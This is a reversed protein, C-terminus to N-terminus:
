RRLDAWVTKGADGLPEVGWRAALADVAGLGHLPAPPLAPGSGDAEPSPLPSADRVSIRLTDGHAALAVTFGSRAHVVANAALETVVLAVDDALDGAAWRRLTGVAFHRAAAPAYRSFAFTCTAGASASASAPLQGAFEGHLRCVEAFADPRDGETVARAPYGCFLSFAYERGLENWRTELQVAANVLGADWLMAVMEAYARVPRGGAGAAQILAGIERRFGAGDLQDGAMFERVLEAADLVLYADRRAAADLDVGARRLRAELERRHAATAIIVAAGGETLAGLLYSAVREALEEDRGYFQVVHQGANVFETGVV